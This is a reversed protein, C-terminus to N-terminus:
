DEGAETAILSAVWDLDTNLRAVAYDLLARRYRNTREGVRQKEALLADLKERLTLRYAGAVQLRQRRTLLHFFAVKMLFENRRAPESPVDISTLMGLLREEGVPTIQYVIRDPTKEQAETAKALCGREELKNLMPYISGWSAAWFHGVTRDLAQRLEYGHMPRDKLLGLIPLEITMEQLSRDVRYVCSGANYRTSIDNDLAAQLRVSGLALNSRPGPPPPQLRHGVHARNTGTRLYEYAVRQDFTSSMTDAVQKLSIMPELLSPEIVMWGVRLGPAVTKSLTGMYVVQGERDFSKVSPLDAGSYRIQGYPDDEMVVFGYRASLDALERRRGAALTVGTPNQFNPITYLMKPRYRDLLRPLQKVIIGQEDTPAAVM